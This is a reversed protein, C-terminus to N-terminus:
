APLEALLRSVDHELRVLAAPADAMQGEVAIRELAAAGAVVAPASFYSAAGKLAHAAARLADARGQEIADRIAAMRRPCDEMFLQVVEGMLAEDGGTRRRLDNVDFSSATTDDRAGAGKAPDEAKAEVAAFLARPDVPKALYGDMGAAICHERDGKMAHATMAIIRVRRGTPRERERIAATAELGDMEPMQLDMLVVDFRERELADVAERGNTVVSVAHGRKSLLGVAVKQNVPNDEALLVAMPRVTAARGAGIREVRTEAIQRDLARYIAELLESQKVPKTLYTGVGLERCRAADGYQGSSTLMMICAGGLEQRLRIQEAV